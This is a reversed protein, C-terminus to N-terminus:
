CPFQFVSKKTKHFLWLTKGNNGLFCLSHFVGFPLFKLQMANESSRLWDPLIRKSFLVLIKLSCVLIGTSTFMSFIRHWWLFYLHAIRAWKLGYRYSTLSLLWKRVFFGLILGNTTLNVKSDLQLRIRWLAFRSSKLRFDSVYSFFAIWELLCSCCNFLSTFLYSYGTEKM